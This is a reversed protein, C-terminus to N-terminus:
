IYRYYISQTSGSEHIPSPVTYVFAAFRAVSAEADILEEYHIM